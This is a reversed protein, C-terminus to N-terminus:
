PRTRLDDYFFLGEWQRRKGYRVKHLGTSEEFAVLEAPYWRGDKVKLSVGPDFRKRSFARIRNSDRDLTTYNAEDDFYYLLTVKDGDIKVAKTKQWSDKKPNIRAEYYKGVDKHTRTQSKVLNFTDPFHENVYFTAEQQMFVAIEERSHAMLERLSVTGDANSDVYSRGTFGSIMTETFTWYMGSTQTPLSASLTAYAKDTKLTKMEEGLAGAYCCGAMTLVTSGKFHKEILEYMDAVAYMDSWSTWNSNGPADYNVFYGLGRKDVSGHGTYYTFLTDGEKTKKLLQIFESKINKLTAKQDKLYVIQDEPVGRRVLLDHFKQDERNPDPMDAYTDNNEFVEVAIMMVWTKRPEWNSERPTRTGKAPTSKVLRFDDQGRADNIRAQRSNSTSDGGIKPTEALERTGNWKKWKTRGTKRWKGKFQKGDPSLEFWGDGTKGSETYKFEIRSGKVTGAIRSNAGESYTGSVTSGNVMLRMGGYNTRWVGEFTKSAAKAPNAKAESGPNTDLAQEQALCAPALFLLALFARCNTM